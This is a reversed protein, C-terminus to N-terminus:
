GLMGAVWSVLAVKFATQRLIIIVELIEDPVPQSPPMLNNLTCLYRNRGPCVCIVDAIKEM